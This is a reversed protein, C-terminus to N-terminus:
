QGFPIQHVQGFPIQHVQVSPIQQAKGTPYQLVRKYKPLKMQAKLFALRDDLQLPALRPKSFIRDMWGRSLWNLAQPAPTPLLMAKEYDSIAKLYHKLHDHVIGRVAYFNGATADLLIAEDVFRLAEDYDKLRVLTTALGGYAPAFNPNAQLALLYSSKARKYRKESLYGNAAQYAQQGPVKAAFHETVMLGIVVAALMLALWIVFKIFLKIAM